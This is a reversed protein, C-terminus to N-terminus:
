DNLLLQQFTEIIKILLYCGESKSPQSSCKLKQCGTCCWWFSFILIGMKYIFVSFSLFAVYNELAISTMLILTLLLNHIETKSWFANNKFEAEKQIPVQKVNFGFLLSQLPYSSLGAKVGGLPFLYLYVLILEGPM